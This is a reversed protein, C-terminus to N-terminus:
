VLLWPPVVGGLCFKGGLFLIGGGLFPLAWGYRPNSVEFVEMFISVKKKFQRLTQKDDQGLFEEPIKYPDYKYDAHM